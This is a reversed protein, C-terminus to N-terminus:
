WMCDCHLCVFMHYESCVILCVLCFFWSMVSVRDGDVWQDEAEEYECFLLRMVSVGCACV